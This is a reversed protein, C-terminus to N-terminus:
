CKSSAMKQLRYTNSVLNKANKESYKDLKCSMMAYNLLAENYNKTFSDIFDVSKQLLDKLELFTPKVLPITISDSQNEVILMEENSTYVNVQDNIINIVQKILEQAQLLLGMNNKSSFKKIDLYNKCQNYIELIESSRNQPSTELIDPKIRNYFLCNKDTDKQLM